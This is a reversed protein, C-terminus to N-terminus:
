LCARRWLCECAIYCWRMEARVWKLRPSPRNVRAQSCETPSPGVNYDRLGHGSLRQRGVTEACPLGRLTGLSYEMLLLTNSGDEREKM